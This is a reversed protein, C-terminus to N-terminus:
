TRTSLKIGTCKRAPESLSVTGEGTVKFIETGGAVGVILNFTTAAKRYAEVVLANGTYLVSNSNLYLIPDDTLALSTELVDCLQGSASLFFALM